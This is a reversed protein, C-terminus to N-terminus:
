DKNKPNKLCKDRVEELLNSVNKKIKALKEKETLDNKEITYEINGLFAMIASGLNRFDKYTKHFKCNKCLPRFLESAKTFFAERKAKTSEVM